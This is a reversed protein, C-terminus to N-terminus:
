GWQSGFLGNHRVQTSQAQPLSPAPATGVIYRQDTIMYDHTRLRPDVITPGSPPNPEQPSQTDGVRRKRGRPQGINVLVTLRDTLWFGVCFSCCHPQFRLTDKMSVQFIFFRELERPIKARLYHSNESSERLWFDEHSTM